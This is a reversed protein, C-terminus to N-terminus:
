CCSPGRHDLRLVHRAGSDVCASAQDSVATTAAVAGSSTLAPDGGPDIDDHANWSWEPSYGDYADHDGVVDAIQGDANVVGWGDEDAGEDWWEADGDDDVEAEDGGEAFRAKPRM